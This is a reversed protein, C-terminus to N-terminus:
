LNVNANLFLPHKQGATPVSYYIQGYNSLLLNNRTDVDFIFDYPFHMTVNALCIIIYERGIRIITICFFKHHFSNKTICYFISNYQM